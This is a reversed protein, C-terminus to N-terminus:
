AVTDHIFVEYTGVGHWTIVDADPSTETRVCRINALTAGTVAINKDHLVDYIMGLLVKADKAGRNARTFVHVNCTIDQGEMTKTGADVASDDGIVIYPFATELPVDDYVRGGVTANILSDGTLVRFLAAQLSQSHDTM